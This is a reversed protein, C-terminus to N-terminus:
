AASREDLHAPQEAHQALVVLSEDPSGLGPGLREVHQDVPRLLGPEVYADRELTRSLCEGGANINRDEADDLLRKGVGQLVGAWGASVDQQLVVVLGDLDLDDVGPEDVSVLGRADIWLVGLM